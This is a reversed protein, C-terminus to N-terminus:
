RVLPETRTGHARSVNHSCLHIAFFFSSTLRQRFPFVDISLVSERFPKYCSIQITRFVGKDSKELSSYYKADGTQKRLRQAKRRELTPRHTEPVFQSHALPLLFFCLPTFHYIFSTRPRAPRTRRGDLDHDDLLDM